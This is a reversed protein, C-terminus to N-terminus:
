INLRDPPRIVRVPRSKREPEAQVQPKEKEVPKSEQQKEVEKKKKTAPLKKVPPNSENERVIQLDERIYPTHPYRETLYLPPQGPTLIQQTITTPEREWRIDTERFKGHLKKGTLEHPADLVVRVKTGEELLNCSEGKCKIDPITIEKEVKRKLRKNMYRVIHPLDDTWNTDPKNEELERKHQAYFIAKGLIKNKAEVMAQQSHRDPKAWRIIIKQKDFLQKVKGCFETGKDLEIMTSPYGELIGRKYIKEFANAVEDSEKTKLPEADTARSAIDTVVLAYKSGDKDEPLYLIDAQHVANEDVDKFRAVNPGKPKKPKEYLRSLIDSPKDRPKLIGYSEHYIDPRQNM